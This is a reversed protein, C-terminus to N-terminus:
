KIIYNSTNLIHNPVPIKEVPAVLSDTIQIKKPNRKTTTTQIPPIVKKLSASSVAQNTLLDTKTSIKSAAMM